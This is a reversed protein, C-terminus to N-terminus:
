HAQARPPDARIAEDMVEGGTAWLLVLATAIVFGIFAVQKRRESRDIRRDFPSM